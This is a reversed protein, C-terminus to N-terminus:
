VVLAVRAAVAIQYLIKSLSETIQWNETQPKPLVIIQDGGQLRTTRSNANVINMKGNQQVILVKSRDATKTFGGALNIYQNISFRDDKEISMSNLVDGSITIVSSFEPVHIIDNNELNIKDWSSEDGLVVQGKLKVNKAENIFKMLLESQVVQMRAGNETVSSSTLIQRELRSLSSNIAAEQEKAVSERYLQLNKINAEKKFHIKLLLDKLTTGDRLVFQHEGNIAGQVRVILQKLTQDAVFTITDGSYLKANFAKKIPMYKISPSEGQHHLIRVHTSTSNIPIMSLITKVDINEKTIEYQYPVKVNGNVTILSGVKDVVITDGQQLQLQAINGKLLFDYLDIQTKTLGQRIVQINRFSGEELSIGGAQCLYYIISDSSLGDYLGPSKVFGSVYVQVPQATLLNAYLYVDKKYIEKLKSSLVKNLRNNPLGQIHVPGIEPLFVNGQNDIVLLQNFEIAGWIQVSIKDGVALQYNPNFFHSQKLTKCQHEFLAHGFTEQSEQEVGGFARENNLHILSTSQSDLNSRNGFALSQFDKEKVSTSKQTPATSEMNTPSLNNSNVSNRNQLSDLDLAFCLSQLLCLFIIAFFVKFFAKM